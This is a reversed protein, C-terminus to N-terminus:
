TNSACSSLESFSFTSSTTQVILNDPLGATRRSKDKNNNTAPIIQPKNNCRGETEITNDLDFFSRSSDTSVVEADAAAAAKATKAEQSTLNTFAKGTRLKNNNSQAVQSGRIDGGGGGHKMRRKIGKNNLNGNTNNNSTYNPREQELQHTILFSSGPSIRTKVYGLPKGNKWYPIKSHQKSSDTSTKSPHQQKHTTATATFTTSTTPDSGVNNELSSTFRMDGQADFNNEGLYPQDDEDSSAGATSATDKSSTDAADLRGSTWSTNSMVAAGLDTFNCTIKTLPRTVHTSPLFISSSYYYYPNM